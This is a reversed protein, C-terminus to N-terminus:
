PNQVTGAESNRQTALSPYAALLEEEAQQSDLEEISEDRAVLFPLGFRQNERIADLASAAFVGELKKPALLHQTKGVDQSQLPAGTFNQWRDPCLINPLAQLSGEAITKPQNGVSNDVVQWHTALPQYLDTLNDLGTAYRRRITEESISHGGKKARQAVRAVALEPTSLWLYFMHIAYGQGVLGQLWPAFAKGSLTTEFAFNVRAKALENLRAMMIKGARVSSSEPAFGSLGRAIVDANVFETIQLSEHLLRPAVTSKGAGNPGALVIVRPTTKTVKVATNKAM